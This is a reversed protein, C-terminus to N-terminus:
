TFQNVLRLNWVPDTTNSKFNKFDNDLGYEYEEFELFLQDTHEDGSNEHFLLALEGELKKRVSELRLFEKKWVMRHQKM